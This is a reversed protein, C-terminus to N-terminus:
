QWGLQQSKSTLEFPINYQNLLKILKANGGDYRVADEYLKSRNSM